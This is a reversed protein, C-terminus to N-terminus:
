DILAKGAERDSILGREHLARVTDRLTETLPRPQFGLEAMARSDDVGATSESGVFIMEKSLPLRVPAIRQLLDFFGGGSRVVPPPVSIFRRKRGTIASLARSVEASSVLHGAVLYRRPGRGTEVTAAIANALDRVDVIPLGGKRSLMRMRGKLIGIAFQNSEGIYPDHPGWVSGPMITVVPAGAAQLERAFRESAAKSGSYTGVGVGPDDDPAIVRGNSPLLAVYSSVHVIPDLGLDHAAELVTRTGVLNTEQITQAERPDLSFVSAAHIVADCGKLAARVAEGNTVDGEVIDDVEVGLPGLAARVRDRKRVLLRLQHGRALLAAVAHAGVFGTGGTVLVRM